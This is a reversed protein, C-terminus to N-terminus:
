PASAEPAAPSQLTPSSDSAAQSERASQLQGTAVSPSSPRSPEADGLERLASVRDSFVPWLELLKMTQLVGRTKENVNCLMARGGRNSVIRSLAVIVNVTVAAILPINELDVLVNRFAGGELLRRVKNAETQVDGYFFDSADGLPVVILTQGSRETRFVKNHRTSDLADWEHPPTTSEATPVTDLELPPTDQPVSEIKRREPEDEIQAVGPRDGAPREKVPRGKSRAAEVKRWEARLRKKLEALEAARASLEKRQRTMSLAEEALSRTQAALEERRRTLDENLATLAAREAHLHEWEAALRQQAENLKAERGDLQQARADLARRQAAVAEQRARLDTQEGGRPTTEDGPVSREAAAAVRSQDPRSKARQSDAPREIASPEDANLEGGDQARSRAASVFEGRYHARLQFQGLRLKDGDNLMASHIAKGRVRTGGKGALDVVWLGDNLLVLACHYTSVSQDKLRLQCQSANGVLTILRSVTWETRKSSGGILQLEVLPLPGLEGEYHDLPDFGAPLREAGSGLGMMDVLRIQYRGVRLVDGPDFWGSRWPMENCLTGARTDLDIGYIRGFLGQLYVHRLSIEADDFRCACGEIRGVLASSGQIVQLIPEEVSSSGVALRFTGPLVASDDRDLTRMTVLKPESLWARRL